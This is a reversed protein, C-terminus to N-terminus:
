EGQVQEFWIERQMVPEYLEDHACCISNIYVYEIDNKIHKLFKKFLLRVLVNVKGDVRYM